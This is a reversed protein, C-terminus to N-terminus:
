SWRDLNNWETYLSVYVRIYQIVWLWYWLWKRLINQKPNEVPAGCKKHATHYIKTSLQELISAHFFFYFMSYPFIQIEKRLKKWKVFKSRQNFNTDHIYIEIKSLKLWRKDFISYCTISCWYADRQKCSRSTLKM